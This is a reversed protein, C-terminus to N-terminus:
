RPTSNRVDFSSNTKFTKYFLILTKPVAWISVLKDPWTPEGGGGGGGAGRLFGMLVIIHENSFHALGGALSQFKFNIEYMLIKKKTHM